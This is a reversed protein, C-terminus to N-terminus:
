NCILYIQVGFIPKFHLILEEEKLNQLLQSTFNIQLSNIQCINLEVVKQYKILFFKYIM